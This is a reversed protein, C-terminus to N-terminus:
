ENRQEKEEYNMKSDWTHYDMGPTLEARYIWTQVNSRIMNTQRGQGKANRIM